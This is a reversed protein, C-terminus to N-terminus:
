FVPNSAVTSAILMVFVIAGVGVWKMVKLVQHGRSASSAERTPANSQAFMSRDVGAAGDVPPGNDIVRRDSPRLTTDSALHVRGDLTSRGVRTDTPAAYHAPNSQPRTHCGALVHPMWLLLAYAPLRSRAPM